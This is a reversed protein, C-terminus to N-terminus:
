HEYNNGHILDGALIVIYHIMYNPIHNPKTRVLMFTITSIIVRM